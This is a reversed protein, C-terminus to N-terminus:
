EYPIYRVEMELQVKTNEYVKERIYRILNLVDEATASQINVIFNAHLSSVRAGGLTYGKLGCQDILAGASTKPPNRFICGANKDQYPQTQLRKKLLDSQIKRSGEGLELYFEGELIMGNMRHFSSYRYCFELDNKTYKQIKGNSYLYTVGVLTDRTEQGTAGANMYIAGGVTAPIASAFELGTWGKRATQKGLRAFSYGSGVRVINKEMTCYDLRNLLVVGNYGKDSFLCNSGKGLIFIPLKKENAFLFAEQAEKISTITTFYKAPGGIKFTCVNKLPYNQLM